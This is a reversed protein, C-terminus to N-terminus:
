SLSLINTRRRSLPSAITSRWKEVFFRLMEISPSDRNCALHLATLGDM